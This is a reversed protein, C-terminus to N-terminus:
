ERKHKGIEKGIGLGLTWTDYAEWRFDYQLGGFVEWGNRIESGYEISLRTLYYNEEKAFNVVPEWDLSWRETAKYIFLVAPAIPTTM